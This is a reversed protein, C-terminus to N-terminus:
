EVGVKANIIWKYGTSIGKAKGVKAGAALEQKYLVPRSIYDFLGSAMLFSQKFYRM